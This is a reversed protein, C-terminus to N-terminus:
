RDKFDFGLRMMSRLGLRLTLNLEKECREGMFYRGSLLLAAVDETDYRLGVSALLSNPEHSEILGQGNEVPESLKEIDRLHMTYNSQPPVGIETKLLVLSDLQERAAKEGREILTNIAGASFSGSSFGRVPVKILLDCYKENEEARRTIDSGVSREMVDFLTRYDKDAGVGLDFRIGIVIDAGLQRAVDAAFNNKTGGDVLVMDNMHVPTFVGPISMSARISKVLSGHTLLAEKDTVLDTAICAFQRPLDTLFNISDTYGQLFHEFTSEVNNGRIVGGPKPDIGGRVYFEREYIYTNRAERERLTLRHQNGRDLFLDAWDMSRFMTELDHSDYGVSYMAGVISGISTGVVLDIPLGAEEIVKIAGVHSAGLAGGGSLVLAVKKRGPVSDTSASQASIPMILLLAMM